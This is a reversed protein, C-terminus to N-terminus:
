GVFDVMSNKKKLKAMSPNLVKSRGPVVFFLVSAILIVNSCLMHSACYIHHCFKEFAPDNQFIQGSLHVM